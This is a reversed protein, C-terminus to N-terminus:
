KVKVTEMLNSRVDKIKIERISGRPKEGIQGDTNKDNIDASNKVRVQDPDAMDNFSPLKKQSGNEYPHIHAVPVPLKRTGGGVWSDDQPKRGKYQRDPDIPAAKSKPDPDKASKEKLCVGGM